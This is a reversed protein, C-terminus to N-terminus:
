GLNTLLLVGFGVEDARVVVVTRSEEVPYLLATRIIFVEVKQIDGFVAKQLRVDEIKRKGEADHDVALVVVEVKSVLIPLKEHLWPMKSVAVARAVRAAKTVFKKTLWRATIFM